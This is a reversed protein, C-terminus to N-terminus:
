QVSALQRMVFKLLFGGAAQLRWRSFAPHVAKGGLRGRTSPHVRGALPVVSRWDLPMGVLKVAILAASESRASASSWANIAADFPAGGM